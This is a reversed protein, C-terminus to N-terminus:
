PRTGLFTGFTFHSTVLVTLSITPSTGIMVFVRTPCTSLEASGSIVTSIWSDRLVGALAFPGTGTIMTKPPPNPGARPPGGGATEGSCCPAAGPGLQCACDSARPQPKAVSFGALM